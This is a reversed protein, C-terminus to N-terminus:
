HGSGCRDRACADLIEPLGGYQDPTYGLVKQWVDDDEMCFYLTTHPAFSRIREVISRYMEIRLPKFYRMKGDLGRIFEGHIITSGPFRREVIAHLRPMFRFSGLSIWAIRGPDIRRFLKEIVLDYEGASGPYRIMPDFHFALPYGNAQCAAAANIRADLSATGREQERIVRETNLSWSMITNGQHDLKLLHDVSATKTKLELVANKKGAFLHVLETGLPYMKEWILSDTFEGTGIRHIQESAFLSDLEKRMDALNVFFTLMPPHFYAQLICYACDMTCYSGIHLIHYNCCTYHTTGPCKKIFAGKNRTLLLSRKGATEPDDCSNVSRLISEPDGTYEVPTKLRSCIEM